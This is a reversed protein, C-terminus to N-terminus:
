AHQHFPRWACRMGHFDLVSASGVIGQSAKGQGSFSASAVSSGATLVTSAVEALFLSPFVTISDLHGVVDFDDGGVDWGVRKLASLIGSGISRFSVLLVGGLDM